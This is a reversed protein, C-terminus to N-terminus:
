VALIPANNSENLVKRELVHFADHCTRCLWSVEDPKNYDPHHMQSNENGCHACPQRILIGRRLLKNARNRAHERRRVEPDKRDERKRHAYCYRCYSKDSCDLPCGCTCKGDAM